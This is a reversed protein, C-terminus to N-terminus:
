PEVSNKLAQMAQPVSAEHWVAWCREGESSSEHGWLIGGKWGQLKGAVAWSAQPIGVLRSHARLRGKRRFATTLNM